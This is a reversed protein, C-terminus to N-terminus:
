SRKDYADSSLECIPSHQLWTTQIQDFCGRQVRLGQRLPSTDDVTLEAETLSVYRIERKLTDFIM